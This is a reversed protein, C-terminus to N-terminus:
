KEIDVFIDDTKFGLIKDLMDIFDAYDKKYKLYSDIM